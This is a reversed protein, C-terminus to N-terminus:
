IHCAINPREFADRSMYLRETLHARIVDRSVPGNLDGYTRPGNRHVSHVSTINTELYVLAKVMYFKFKFLIQNIGSKYRAMDFGTVKDHWM